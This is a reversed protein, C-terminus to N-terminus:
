GAGLPLQATNVGAATLSSARAAIAITTTTSSEPLRPMVGRNRPSPRGRRASPPTAAPNVNLIPTQAMIASSTPPSTVAAVAVPFSFRGARCSPPKRSYAAAADAAAPIMSSVTTRAKTTLVSRWALRGSASITM